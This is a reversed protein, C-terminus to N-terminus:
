DATLIVAEIFGEECTLRESADDVPELSFIVFGSCRSLPVVPHFHGEPTILVSQDCRSPLKFIERTTFYFEIEGTYANYQGVVEFGYSYTADAPCAGGELTFRVTATGNGKVSGNTLSFTFEGEEEQKHVGELDYFPDSYENRFSGAWKQPIEDRADEPEPEAADQGQAVPQPGVVLVTKGCEYEGSLDKVCVEFESRSEV